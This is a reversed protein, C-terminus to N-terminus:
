RYRGEEFPIEKGPEPFDDRFPMNGLKAISRLVPPLTWAPLNMILAVLIAGVLLQKRDHDLGRWFAAFEALSIDSAGRRADPNDVMSDFFDVIRDLDRLVLEILQQYFPRRAAWEAFSTLVDWRDDLPLVRLQAAISDKDPKGANLWNMYGVSAGQLIADCQICVYRPKAERHGHHGCTLCNCLVCVGMPESPKGKTTKIVPVGVACAQCTAAM